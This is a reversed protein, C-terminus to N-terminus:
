SLQSFHAHFSSRVSNTTTPTTRVIAIATSLQIEAQTIAHDLPLIGTTRGMAYLRYEEFLLRKAQEQKLLAAARRLAGAKGARKRSKETMQLFPRHLNHGSSGHELIGAGGRGVGGHDAREIVLRDVLGGARDDMLRCAKKVYLAAAALEDNVALLVDELGVREDGDRRPLDGVRYFHCFRELEDLDYVVIGIEVRYELANEAGAISGGLGQAKEGHLRDGIEVAHLRLIHVADHLMELRLEAHFGRADFRRVLRKRLEIRDVLEDIQHDNVAPIDHRVAALQVGSPLLGDLVLGYQAVNIGM